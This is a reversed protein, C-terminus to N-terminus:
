SYCLFCVEVTPPLGKMQPHEKLDKLVAEKIEPFVKVLQDTTAMTPGEEAAM